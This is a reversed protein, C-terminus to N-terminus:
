LTTASESARVRTLEARVLANAVRQMRPGRYRWAGDAGRESTEDIVELDAHYYARALRAVHARACRPRGWSSCSTAGRWRMPAACVPSIGRGIHRSASRVPSARECDKHTILGVHGSARGGGDPDFERSLSEASPSRSAGSRAWAPRHPQDQWVALGRACRHPAHEAASRGRCAGHHGGDQALRALLEEDGAGDLLRRPPLVGNSGTGLRRASTLHLAM